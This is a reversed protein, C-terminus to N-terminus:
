SIARIFERLYGPMELQPYWALALRQVLAKGGNLATITGKQLHPKAVEETLVGIGLGRNIMGILAENNNVFHRGKPKPSVGFHNLYNATTHDEEHFDIIRYQDMVQDPLLPKCKAPGVLLYREPKLLKSDMEAAVQNPDVICFDVQGRRLREIRDELDNIEFTLILQPNRDQLKNVASIVRATMVSTPGAIRVRAESIKAKGGIQAMTEGEMAVSANCYRLLAQGSETLTMGRRSRLFLSAGLQKELSRIRQTVGTQTLKLAAAAAHVTKYQSVAMFAQLQPSLLNM